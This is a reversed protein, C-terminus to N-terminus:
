WRAGEVNVMAARVVGGKLQDLYFHTDKTAMEVVGFFSERQSAEEDPAGGVSDVDGEASRWYCLMRQHARLASGSHMELLADSNEYPEEVLWSQIREQLRYGADNSQTETGFAGTEGVDVEPIDDSTFMTSNDVYTKHLLWMWSDITKEAKGLLVFFGMDDSGRGHVHLDASISLYAVYTERLSGKKNYHAFRWARKRPWEALLAQSVPFGGANLAATNDRIIPMSPCFLNLLARCAQQNCMGQVSSSNGSALNIVASPSTLLGMLVKAGDCRRMQLALERDPARTLSGFEHHTHTWSEGAVAETYSSLSRAEMALINGLISCCMQQMAGSENALLSILVTVVSNAKLRQLVTMDRIDSTLALIEKVNQLALSRFDNSFTESKSMVREKDPAVREFLPLSHSVEKDSRSYVHPKVDRHKPRGRQEKMEKLFRCGRSLRAYYSVVAEREEKKTATGLYIEQGQGQNRVSMMLKYERTWFGGEILLDRCSSTSSDIAAIDRKNLYALVYEGFVEPLMKTLKFYQKQDELYTGKSKSAKIEEVKADRAEFKAHTEKLVGTLIETNAKVKHLQANTKNLSVRSDEVTQRFKLVWSPLHKGPTSPPLSLNDVVEENMVEIRENKRLILLVLIPVERMLPRCTNQPQPSTDNM